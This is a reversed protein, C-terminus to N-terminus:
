VFPDISWIEFLTVSVEDIRGVTVSGGEIVRDNEVNVLVDVDVDVDVDVGVPVEDFRLVRTESATPM